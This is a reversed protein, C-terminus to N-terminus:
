FNFDGFGDDTGGVAPESLAVHRAITKRAREWLAVVPGSKFEPTPLFPRAPMRRTGYHQEDAHNATAGFAVGHASANAYVSGRMEGTSSSPQKLPAWPQGSPGTRSLFCGNAFSVIDRAIITTAPTMDAMRRQVDELDSLVAELGRVTVPV